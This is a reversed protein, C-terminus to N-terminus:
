SKRESIYHALDILFQKSDTKSSSLKKVSNIAEKINLDFIKQAQELAGSSYIISRIQKLDKADAQENGLASVLVLKDQQSSLEIAKKYLLTMKGEHIDDLNSKGTVKDDGFIGIIDDQLQFAKGLSSAYKRLRGDGNIHRGALIAGMEIPNYFTYYATKWELVNYIMEDEVTPLAENFIDNIQGHGTIILCDNLTKLLKLKTEPNVDLSILYNSTIQMAILGANVAISNGFHVSDGRFTNQKHYLEIEKNATLQGRRTESKDCFDDIVLLYAHVMEISTALRLAKNADDGGHLFYSELVLSGRLRKGGRTAVSKYANIALESYKGYRSLNDKTAIKLAEAVSEDIAKQHMNFKTLFSQKIQNKNVSLTM